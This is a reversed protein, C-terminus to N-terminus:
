QLLRVHHGSNEILYLNQLGGEVFGWGGVCVGRFRLSVPGLERWVLRLPDCTSLALGMGHGVAGEDLSIPVLM